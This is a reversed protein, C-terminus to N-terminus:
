FTSTVDSNGLVVASFAGTGVPISNASFTCIVTASTSTMRILATLTARTVSTGSPSIANSVTFDGLLGLRAECGSHAYTPAATVNATGVYTWTLQVVDGIVGPLTWALNNASATTVTAGSLRGSSTTTVATGAPASASCATAYYSLSGVRAPYLVPRKLAVDYTVWLEGVVSATPVGVGPAVAIQFNGLDTSTLPITSTGARVYYCNQANSGSACEVGYMLSKDLRTSVAASSNEMTFKSSFVPSAANYEMSAIVTGLASTSIYPSASTIFEFVLGDFCYEEYNSALQSLFPFTSALGPNIAYAYNKFAGAVGSTLVDGLFERRKVRIMTGDDGFTASPVASKSAGILSNVSVENTTYDGSGILKSIRKGLAAGANRGGPVNTLQGLAGGGKILAEKLIPKLAQRMPTIFNKFDYSGQGVIRPARKNARARAKQSKTKTLATSEACPGSLGTRRSPTVEDAYIHGDAGGSGSNLTGPHEDCKESSFPRRLACDSGNTHWLM